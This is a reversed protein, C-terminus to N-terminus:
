SPSVPLNVGGLVNLLLLIVVIVGIVIAAVRILQQFPQPLPILTVAWYILGIILLVIIAYILAAILGTIM